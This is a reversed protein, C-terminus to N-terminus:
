FILSKQTEREKKVKFKRQKINKKMALWCITTGSSSSISSTIDHDLSLLQIGTNLIANNSGYLKYKVQLGIDGVLFPGYGKVIVLVV